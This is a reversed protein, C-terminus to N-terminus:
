ERSAAAIAARPSGHEFQHVKAVHAERWAPRVIRPSSRSAPSSCSSPRSASSNCGTSASHRASTRRPRNRRSLRRPRSTASRWVGKSAKSSALSATARPLRLTNASIPGLERAVQAVAVGVQRGVRGGEVGEEVPQARALRGVALAVQALRERAILLLAELGLRPAAGLEDHERVELDAEV